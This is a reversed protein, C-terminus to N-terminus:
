FSALRQGIETAALRVRWWQRVSLFIYYFEITRVIWHVSLIPRELLLSYWKFRMHHYYISRYRLSGTAAESPKTVNVAAKPEEMKEEAVPATAV